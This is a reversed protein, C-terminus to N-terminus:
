RNKAGSMRQMGKPRSPGGRKWVGLMQKTRWMQWWEQEKKGVVLGRDGLVRCIMRTRELTALRDVYQQILRVEAQKRDSVFIVRSM